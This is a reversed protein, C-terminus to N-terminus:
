FISTMLSTIVTIVVFVVFINEYCYIHIRRKILEFNNEYEPFTELFKDIQGHTKYRGLLILHKTRNSKEKPFYLFYPEDTQSIHYLDFLNSSLRTLYNSFFQEVFSEYLEPRIEIFRDVHYRMDRYPSHEVIYQIIKNTENPFGTLFNQVITREEDTINHESHDLIITIKLLISKIFTDKFVNNAFDKPYMSAYNYYDNLSWYRVYENIKNKVGPEDKDGPFRRIFIKTCNLTNIAEFMNNKFLPIIHPCTDFFSDFRHCVIDIEQINRTLSEKVDDMDKLTKNKQNMEKKFRYINYRIMFMRNSLNLYEVLNCGSTIVPNILRSESPYMQVHSKIMDYESTSILSFLDICQKVDTTNISRSEVYQNNSSTGITNSVGVVSDLLTTLVLLGMVIRMRPISSNKIRTM